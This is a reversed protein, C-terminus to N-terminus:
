IQLQTSLSNQMTDLWKRGKQTIRYLKTGPERALLEENILEQIVAKAVDATTFAKHMIQLM